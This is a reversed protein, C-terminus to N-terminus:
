HKGEMLIWSDELQSEEKHRYQGRPAAMELRLTRKGAGGLSLFWMPRTCSVPLAQRVVQLQGTQRRDTARSGKM